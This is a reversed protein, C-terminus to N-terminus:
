PLLGQAHSTEIEALLQAKTAKSLAVPRNDEDFMPSRAAGLSELVERLEENTMAEYDAAAPTIVTIVEVPQEDLTEVPESEPEVVEVPEPEVTVTVTQADPPDIYVAKHQVDVLYDELGFLRPDGVAYVGPEIVQENTRRGQFYQTVQIRRM